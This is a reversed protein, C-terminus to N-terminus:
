RPGCHPRRASRGSRRGSGPARTSSGLRSSRSSRAASSARRSRHRATARAAPSCGCTRSGVVSSRARGVVSGATSSAASSTASTSTTRADSGMPRARAAVARQGYFGGRVRPGIVLHPASTGHDTGRGDNAYSTRGFESFTIVTVRSAWAPDLVAHFRALAADLERMRDDHQGPQGAHSDFDGWGATLVRFGLNANILRAAVEMRAVIETDPLDSRTPCSGVSAPGSTSSTSSRRASGVRGRRHRRM